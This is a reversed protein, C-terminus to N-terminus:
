FKAALVPCGDVLKSQGQGDYKKSRHKVVFHSFEIKSGSGVASKRLVSKQRFGPTLYSSQRLLVQDSSFLGTPRQNMIRELVGHVFITSVDADMLGGLGSRGLLLGTERIAPDDLDHLEFHFGKGREQGHSSLAPLTLTLM